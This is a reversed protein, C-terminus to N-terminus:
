TDSRNKIFCIQSQPKLDATMLAKMFMLGAPRGQFCILHPLQPLARQALLYRFSLTGLALQFYPQCKAEM